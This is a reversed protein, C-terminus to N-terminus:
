PINIVRVWGYSDNSLAHQISVLKHRLGQAVSGVTGDGIVFEGKEHRVRSVSTIVAATGCAFVEQLRGDVADKQWEHFSYGREEVKMGAEAALTLISSRTIGSLITGGLPPTVLTNKDLVFCINMGGLEEVWRREVVDLFAVQDCGKEHALAQAQLSAAYNGGCKAAGTGGPAARSLYKEVWITIPKGQGKFYAGAPSAIVCFIYEKASRVGLFSESAFMFPRLYLSADNGEPIWNRDIKVLETVADLFLEEPLVPMALRKASQAFRQANQEPRFLLVCGDQSRYAKLGEFVEQAYHLVASAPDLSLFKRATIQAEHWGKEESWHVLAMHDSFLKGFGPTKLLKKREEGRTPNSNPYIKFSLAAAM